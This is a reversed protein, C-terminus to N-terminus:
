VYRGVTRGLNTILPRQVTVLETEWYYNDPMVLADIFSKINDSNLELKEIQLVPDNKSSLYDYFNDEDYYSTDASEHKGGFFENVFAPMKFIKFYYLFWLLLILVLAIIAGSFLYECIRKVTGKKNNM